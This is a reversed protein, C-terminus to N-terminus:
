QGLEAEFEHLDPSLPNLALAQDVAAVKGPGTSAAALDLWLVWNKPDKAIAKSISQEAAARQHLRLQAEGLDQWGVSSWPAWRVVRRAYTASTQWDGSAAASQSRGAAANGVLTFASFGALAVLPVLPLTRLSRRVVTPAPQSGERGSLVAAAGILVAALTVGALEWDWDVGTGVVYVALAAGVAPMLPHRRNRAAALLPIALFVLVLALGVPGLEALTELYLSHADAVDIDVPRHQLWYQGFTGAGGGLLPHAESQHWAATWIWWRGNSSLTFLRENLNTTEDSTPATFSRYAHQTASFPNGVHVVGAAAVLVVGALLVGVYGRRVRRSIRARSSVHDLAFLAAAEALGLVVLALALRHGDHAAQALSSGAKTLSAPRASLVVGLAPVPALVLLAVTLRVRRADLALLVALGLGVSLWSARSYTYYLTPLLVVLSAAGALRLWRSSARTIVGVALFIGMAAFIGLGNWYGIPGSLRYDAPHYGGFHDPFLREALSYGSIAVIAGLVGSVLASVPRRGSLAFIAAVGGVFVLVREGDLVSQTESSSWLISLWTWAAIACIGGLYALEFRRPRELPVVLLAAVAAGFLGLASWGWSSPFFGGNTASLGTTAVAACGFVAVATFQRGALRRGALVRERTLVSM